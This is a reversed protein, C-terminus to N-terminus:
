PVARYHLAVLDLFEGIDIPKRLAAKVLPLLDEHTQRESATTLIIPIESLRATGAVSALLQRGDMVPMYFDMVMLGPLAANALLRLAEGGHHAQIVSYGEDELAMVLGERIDREDDVVLITGEPM